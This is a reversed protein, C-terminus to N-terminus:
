LISRLEQPTIAFDGADLGTSDPLKYHKEFIHPHNRHWLELGVTHDSIRMVTRPYDKINAPYKSVCFLSDVGDERDDYYEKMTSVSKYVKYKRPIEGILHDLSRDNAIKIFSLYYYFWSAIMKLFILSDLDFVSATTKYGYEKFAWEAMTRFLHRDARINDGRHEFLQWKLIVEHKRTDVEALEDIMRKYYAEDNKHTNASIDLIIQM